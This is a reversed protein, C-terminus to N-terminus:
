ASSAVVPSTSNVLAPAMRPNEWKLAGATPPPRTYTPVSSPINYANPNPMGCGYALPAANPPLVILPQSPSRAYQRISLPVMTPSVLALAMGFCFVNRFKRPAARRGIKLQHSFIAEGASVASNLIADNLKGFDAPGHMALLGIVVSRLLIYPLNVFLAAPCKQCERDIPKPRPWRWAPPVPIARSRPPLM